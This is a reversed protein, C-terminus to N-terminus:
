ETILMNTQESFLTTSHTDHLPAPAEAEACDSRPSEVHAGRILSICTFLYIAGHKFM